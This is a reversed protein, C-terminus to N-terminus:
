PTLPRKFYIYEPLGGEVDKVGQVAFAEWGELGLKGIATSLAEEWDQGRKFRIERTVRGSPKHYIIEIGWYYLRLTCHEWNQM